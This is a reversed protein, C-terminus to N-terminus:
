STRDPGLGSVWTVFEGDHQRQKRGRGRPARDLVPTTALPPPAPASSAPMSPAPTSPSPAKATPPQATLPQATPPQATPPQAAPTNTAPSITEPVTRTGTPAFVATDSPRLQDAPHQAAPHQAAPHQAATAAQAIASELQADRRPLAPRDPTPEFTALDGSSGDTSGAPPDVGAPGRRLVAALVSGLVGAGAATMAAWYPVVEYRDQGADPGAILYAATLLAPGPLGALAITLTPLDRRRALWGIVAGAVLALAPMTFLATRQTVPASLYGADFVGLRVAPLPDSPALSPAV